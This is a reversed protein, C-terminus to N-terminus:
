IGHRMRSFSRNLSYNFNHVKELYKGTKRNCNPCTKKEKRNAHKSIFEFQHQCNSCEYEFLPM